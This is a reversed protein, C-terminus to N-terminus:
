SRSNRISQKVLMLIRITEPKLSARHLSITDRAGSFIREVAVSSGPSLPYLSFIRFFWFIYMGPISLIDCSILESEFVSNGEKGMM